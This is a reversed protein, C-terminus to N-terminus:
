CPHMGLKVPLNMVREFHVSDGTFGYLALKVPEFKAGVLNMIILTSKFLIDALSGNDILIKHVKRGAIRLAVAIADKHPHCLGCAEEETFIISENSLHPVKNRHEAM